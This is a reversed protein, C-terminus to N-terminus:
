QLSFLFLELCSFLLLLPSQPLSFPPLAQVKSYDCKTSGSLSLLSIFQDAPAPARSPFYHPPFYKVNIHSSPPFFLPEPLNCKHHKTDALLLFLHHLACCLCVCHQASEEPAAAGLGAALDIPKTRGQVLASSSFPSVESSSSRSLQNM